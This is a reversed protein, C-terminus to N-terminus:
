ILKYGGVVLRRPKKKICRGGIRSCDFSSCGWTVYSHWLITYKRPALIGHIQYITSEKVNIQLQLRALNRSIVGSFGENNIKFCM